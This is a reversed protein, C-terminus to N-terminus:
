NLLAVPEAVVKHVDKTGDTLYFDFTGNIDPGDIAKVVLTQGNLLLQDGYQVKDPTVITM